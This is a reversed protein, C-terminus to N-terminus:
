KKYISAGNLGSIVDSVSTDFKSGSKVVSFGCSVGGSAQLYICADCASFAERIYKYKTRQLRAECM